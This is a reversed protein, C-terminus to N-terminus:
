GDRAERFAGCTCTLHHTTVLACDPAHKPLARIYEASLGWYESAAQVQQDSMGNDAM